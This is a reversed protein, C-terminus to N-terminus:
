VVGNKFAIILGIAGLALIVAVAFSTFWSPFGFLTSLTQILPVIVAAPISIMDKLTNGVGILISLGSIQDVTNESSQLQSNSNNAWNVLYSLTGSSNLSDNLPVAGSNAYWATSLSFMGTMIAVFILSGIIFQTLIAM